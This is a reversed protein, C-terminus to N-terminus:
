GGAFVVGRVADESPLESYLSDSTGTVEFGMFSAIPNVELTLTGDANTAGTPVGTTADFTPVSFNMVQSTDGTTGSSFSFTQKAGDYSVKIGYRQENSVRQLEGNPAVTQGYSGM